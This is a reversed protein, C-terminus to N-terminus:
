IFKLKELLKNQSDPYLHGYIDYTTSINEHRMYESLVAIPVENDICLSAFSHRFDHIRMNKIFGIKKCNNKCKRDLTTGTISGAEFIPGKEKRVSYMIIYIYDIMKIERNSKDTKPKEPKSGKRISLTKSIKIYNNEFDIDEWQLALIEGRRMGTFFLLYFFLKYNDNKEEEIFSYFENLTMITMKKKNVGRPAKFNGVVHPVNTKINHYKCGYNFIASLTSHIKQKYVLSLSKGKISIHENLKEHWNLIEINTIKNAERKGLFPIIYTNIINCCREFSSGRLYSKVYKLYNISLEEITIKKDEYPINDIGNKLRIEEQQALEKGKRGTWEKNRKTVQKSNGNKDKVYTKIYWSNNEENKYVPM